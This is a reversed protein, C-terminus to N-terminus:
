QTSTRGIVFFNGSQRVLLAAQGRVHGALMEGEAITAIDVGEAFDPGDVTASDQSM